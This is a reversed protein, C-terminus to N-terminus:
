NGQRVKHKLLGKIRTLHQFLGSNRQCVSSTQHWVLKLDANHPSKRGAESALWRGLRGWMKRIALLRIVKKVAKKFRRNRDPQIVLWEDEGTQTPVETNPQPQRRACLAGM